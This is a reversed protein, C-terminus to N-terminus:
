GQGIALYRVVKCPHLGHPSVHRPRQEHVSARSGDPSGQTVRGHSSMLFLTQDNDVDTILVRNPNKQPTLSHPAKKFM